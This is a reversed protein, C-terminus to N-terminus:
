LLLRLKVAAIAIGRLVAIIEILLRRRRRLNRTIFTIKEAVRSVTCAAIEVIVTLDVFTLPFLILAM